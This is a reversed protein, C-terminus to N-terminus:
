SVSVLNRDDRPDFSVGEVVKSHGSFWLKPRITPIKLPKADPLYSQLSKQIRNLKENGEESGDPSKSDEDVFGSRNFYESLDWVLM